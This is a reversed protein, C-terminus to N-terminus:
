RTLALQYLSNAIDGFAASLATANVADYYNGSSTACDELMNRVNADTVEFAITYVRIGQSKAESCVDDLLDAAASLNSGSHHQNGYNASVTNQGDSMLVIAKVARDANMQAYTIGETFPATSSLLRYGWNMGTPIYTHSGQVAMANIEAIVTAKNTTLPTIERPCWTNLLGPVPDSAYDVDQYDLPNDRSGVCGNWTFDTTRDTCTYVPDGDDVDCRTRECSRTTTVGDRTDSCTETTTVCNTRTRDPYENRCHPATQSYDAPVDIWPESRRSLGVKVYRSFPVIGVKVTNDTDAMIQDVLDNAAVKLASLKSGVMSYTNDLVLAVELDKPPSVKAESVVNIDIFRKGVVNMLTTGVRGNVTLTFDDSGGPNDFTFTDIEFNTAVMSNTDFYRRAVAEAGAQNMSPNVAKARAAAILGSDSAEIVQARVNAARLMDVGIGAGAIIPVVLLGFLMAVNGDRAKLFNQFPM